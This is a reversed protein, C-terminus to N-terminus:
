IGLVKKLNNIQTEWLIVSEEKEDEEVFDIVKLTIDNSLDHNEIRFEFFADKNDNELWKFRVFEPTKKSLLEAKEEAGNWVFTYIKDRINVDDAFWEALGEASSLRNFLLKPSAKFIYELEIKVM